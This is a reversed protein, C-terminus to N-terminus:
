KISPLRSIYSGIYVEDESIEASEDIFEDSVILNLERNSLHKVQEFAKDKDYTIRNLRIYDNIAVIRDTAVFTVITCSERLEDESENFKAVPIDEFSSLKDYLDELDKHGGGKLNIEVESNNAWDLFREQALGSSKFAQKWLNNLGHSVQPGVNSGQIYKNVITYRKADM